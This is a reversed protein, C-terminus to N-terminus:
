RPWTYGYHVALRHLVEDEVDEAQADFPMPGYCASRTIGGYHHVQGRALEVDLGAFIMGEGYRLHEYILGATDYVAMKPRLGYYPQRGWRLAELPWTTARRRIGAPLRSFWRSSTGWPPDFRAALFNSVRPSFRVENPVLLEAFRRGSALSRKVAEVQMMVCPVWPREMYLMSREPALWEETMWFPGETFGAGFVRPDGLMDRMWGVFAGDLLEADSDLLLLAEDESGSFILDLTDGHRRIPLEVVDFPYTEMMTDFHRRSDDTPEYNVVLVPMGSLELASLLARTTVVETRFNIILTRAPAPVLDSLASLRM